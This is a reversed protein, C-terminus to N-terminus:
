LFIVIVILQMKSIILIYYIIIINYVILQINIKFYEEFKNIINQDYEFTVSQLLLIKTHKQIVKNNIIM